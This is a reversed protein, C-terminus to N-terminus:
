RAAKAVANSVIKPYAYYDIVREILRVHNIHDQGARFSEYKDCRIHVTGSNQCNLCPSKM